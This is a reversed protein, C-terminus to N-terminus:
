GCFHLVRKSDEAESGSGRSLSEGTDEVDSTHLLM